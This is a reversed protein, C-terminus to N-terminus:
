IEINDILRTNGLFVAIVLRNGRQVQDVKTLTKSDVIELYDIRFGKSELKDTLIGLLENAAKEDKKVLTKIEQMSKYIEPALSQEELSLYRNRSSLALGEASRIIPCRVIKTELNLDALMTELVVIQQFDKEGMFMLTPRVLNVLKLVITAVGTFHGPRSAGCLTNTIDDINIWTKYAEPYMQKSTPLFIYDVGLDSLAQYDQEFTKPYRSFDENPGFQAPNVFISVVTVDCSNLSQKVLDLHGAHLAGMTPVFGVKISNDWNRSLHTIEKLSDIVQM